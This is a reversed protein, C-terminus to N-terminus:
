RAVVDGADGDSVQRAFASSFRRHGMRRLVVRQGPQWVARQQGVADLV